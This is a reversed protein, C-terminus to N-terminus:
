SIGCPSLENDACCCESDFEFKIRLGAKDACNGLHMWYDPCPDHSRDRNAICCTVDSVLRYRKFQCLRTVRLTLARPRKGLSKALRPFFSEDLEFYGIHLYELRSSKRVAANVFQLVDKCPHIWCGCIALRKLGPLDFFLDDGALHACPLQLDELHPFHNHTFHNILKPCRDEEERGQLMFLTPSEEHVFHFSKLRKCNWTQEVVSYFFFRRNNLNTYDWWVKLSELSSALNSEASKVKSYFNDVIKGEPQLLCSLLTMTSFASLYTTGFDLTRLSMERLPIYDPNGQLTSLSQDHGKTIIFEELGPFAKVLEPIFTKGPITPIKISELSCRAGKFYGKILKEAENLSDNM